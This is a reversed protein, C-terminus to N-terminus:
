IVSKMLDSLGFSKRVPFVCSLFVNYVFREIFKYGFNAIHKKKDCSQIYKPYPMQMTPVSALWVLRMIGPINLAFLSFLMIALCSQRFGQSFITNQAMQTQSLTPALYIGIHIQKSGWLVFARFKVPMCSSALSDSKHFTMFFHKSSTASFVSLCIPIELHEHGLFFFFHKVPKNNKSTIWDAMLTRLVFLCSGLKYNTSSYDSEFVTLLIYSDLDM